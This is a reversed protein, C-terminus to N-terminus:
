QEEGEPELNVEDPIIPRLHAFGAHSRFISVVATGELPLDDLMKEVRAGAKIVSESSDSDFSFIFDNCVPVSFVAGPARVPLPSMGPDRAFYSIKVYNNIM